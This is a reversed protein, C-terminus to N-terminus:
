RWLQDIIPRLFPRPRQPTSSVDWLYVNPFRHRRARPLTLTGAVPRPAVTLSRHPPPSVPSPPPEPPFSPSLSSTISPLSASRPSYHYPTVPSSDSHCPSLPSYFRSPLLTHSASLLSPFFSAFGNGNDDNSDDNHDNTVSPFFFSIGSLPNLFIRLPFGSILLLLRHCM